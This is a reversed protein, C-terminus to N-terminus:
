ENESHNETDDEVEEVVVRKAIPTWQDPYFRHALAGIILHMNEFVFDDLLVSNEDSTIASATWTARANGTPAIWKSMDIDIIEGSTWSGEPTALDGADNLCYKKAKASMKVYGWLYYFGFPLCLIFAWQMPRDYKSPPTVSGYQNLGDEILVVSEAQTDLDGGSLAQQFLELSTIWGATNGLDMQKGTSEIVPRDNATELALDVLVGAEFREGSGRETILAGNVVKLVLSRMAAEEREPIAVTYDWIGWFGLVICVVSMIITKLWYRTALKTTIAV